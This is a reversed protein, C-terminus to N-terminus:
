ARWEDHDRLQPRSSGEGPTTSSYTSWSGPRAHMQIRARSTLPVQGYHPAADEQTCLRTSRRSASATPQDGRDFSIDLLTTDIEFYPWIWCLRV